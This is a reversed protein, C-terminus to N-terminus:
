GGEVMMLVVVVVGGCGSGGDYISMMMPIPMALRQFQRGNNPRITCVVGVGAHSRSKGRIEHSRGDGCARKRMM